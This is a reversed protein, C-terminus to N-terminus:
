GKSFIPQNEHKSPAETSNIYVTKQQKYLCNLDKYVLLSVWDGCGNDRLGFSLGINSPTPTPERVNLNAPPPHCPIPPSSSSNPCVFTFFLRCRVLLVVPGLRAHDILSFSVFVYRFFYHLRLIMYCFCWAITHFSFVLCHLYHAVEPRVRSIAAFM